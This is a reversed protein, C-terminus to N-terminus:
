ERLLRNTQLDWFPDYEAVIQRERRRAAELDVLFQKRADFPEEAILTEATRNPGAEIPTAHGDESRLFVPAITMGVGAREIRVM